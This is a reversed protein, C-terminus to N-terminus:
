AVRMADAIHDFADSLTESPRVQNAQTRPLGVLRWDQCRHDIAQLIFHSPPRLERELRREIRGGANDDSAHTAGGQQRDPDNAPKSAVETM